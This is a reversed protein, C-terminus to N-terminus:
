KKKCLCQYNRLSEKTIKEGNTANECDFRNLLITKIQDWDKDLHCEILLYDLKIFTKEMGNLVSLESGEVDIKILKIFEEDSLLKDLTIGQIQGIKQNPRFSMDHGIINNTCSDNGAYFDIMDNKDCVANNFLKINQFRGFKRELNKFTDPHLEVSYIKGTKNTKNNFYETYIGNNSGIDVLVDHNTIIEDLKKIIEIDNKDM